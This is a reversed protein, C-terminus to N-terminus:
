RRTNCFIPRIFLLLVAPFIYVALASDVTKAQMLLIECFCYWQILIIAGAVERGNLDTWQLFCRFHAILHTTLTYPTYKVPM